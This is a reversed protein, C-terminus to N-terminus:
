TRSPRRTKYGLKILPFRESYWPLTFNPLCKWMMKDWLSFQHCRSHKFSKWDLGARRQWFTLVQSPQLHINWWAHVKAIKRFPYQFQKSIWALPCENWSVSLINKNSFIHFFLTLWIIYGLFFFKQLLKLTLLWTFPSPSSPNLQNPAPCSSSTARRFLGTLMHTPDNSFASQAIESAQHHQGLCQPLTLLLTKYVVRDDSLVSHTQAVSFFIVM